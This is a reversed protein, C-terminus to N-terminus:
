RCMEYHSVREKFAARVMHGAILTEKSWDVRNLLEGMLRRYREKDFPRTFTEKILDKAQSKDMYLIKPRKKNKM